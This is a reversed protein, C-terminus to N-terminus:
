GHFLWRMGARVVVKPGKVISIALAIVAVATVAYGLVEFVTQVM